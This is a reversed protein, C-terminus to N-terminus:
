QLATFGDIEYGTANQLMYAQSGSILYFILDNQTVSLNNVTAAARGNSSVSYNGSLFGPSHPGTQSDNVAENWTLNGSNTFSIWGIRSLIM